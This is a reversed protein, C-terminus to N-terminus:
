KINLIKRQNRAKTSELLNSKEQDYITVLLLGRISKQQQQQLYSYAEWCAALGMEVVPCVLM